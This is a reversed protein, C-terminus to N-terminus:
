RLYNKCNKSSLVRIQGMERYSWSTLLPSTGLTLTTSRPNSNLWSQSQFRNKGGSLAVPSLALWVNTKKIPFILQPIKNEKYCHFLDPCHLFEPGTVLKRNRASKMLAM